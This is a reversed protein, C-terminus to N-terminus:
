LVRMANRGRYRMGFSIFFGVNFCIITIDVFPQKWTGDHDRFRLAVKRRVAMVFHRRTFSFFTADNHWSFWIDRM